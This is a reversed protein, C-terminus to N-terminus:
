TKMPVIKHPLLSTGSDRNMLEYTFQGDREGPKIEEGEKRNKLDGSGGMKGSSFARSLGGWISEKGTLVGKYDAELLIGMSHVVADADQLFPKYTAPKLVDAKEWSVKKSWPPADPSSSVSSWIPEGSRSISTVAWGRSM